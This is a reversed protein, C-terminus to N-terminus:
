RRRAALDEVARAVEAPSSIMTLHRAGPILTPTPAGVRRATDAASTAAFVHDDAGFVVAKPLGVGRLLTLRSESLGPVGYKLSGWVGEEAGAVEYPRRWVDVGAKDLHPCGPACQSSYITRILRDSHLVLRLLTTRYPPLILYHAAPGPGAGGKLADGDLLMLAGAQGPSRLVAEAATAAGASHAVITPRELGMAGIFALLQRVQHDLDYPARRETYGAGNLDLAYVRHDRALVTALREWTDASEAAGHVLVIPSGGSGWVRYRTMLDGTRVYTLGAPPRARGSTAANYVLSFVTAAVVFAVVAIGARRLWRRAWSRRRVPVADDGTTLAGGPEAADIM